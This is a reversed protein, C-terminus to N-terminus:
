SAKTSCNRESAKGLNPKFPNRIFLESGGQSHFISKAEKSNIDKEGSYYQIKEGLLIKELNQPKGHRRRILGKLLIGTSVLLKELM